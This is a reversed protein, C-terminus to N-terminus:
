RLFFWYVLVAAIGLLIMFIYLLGRGSVGEPQAGVPIPPAVPHSIAQNEPEDAGQEEDLANNARSARFEELLRPTDDGYMAELAKEASNKVLLNESWLAVMSLADIGAPSPNAAIVRLAKMQREPHIDDQLILILSDIQDPDWSSTKEEVSFDLFEESAEANVIDEAEPEPESDDELDRDFQPTAQGSSSVPESEYPLVGEVPGYASLALEADTKGLYQILAKHSTSQVEGDPDDLTSRILGEPIDPHQLLPLRSATEARFRPDPHRRLIRLLSFHDGADLLEQISLPM